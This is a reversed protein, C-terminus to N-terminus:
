VTYPSPDGRRPPGRRPTAGCPPTTTRSAGTPSTCPAASGAPALAPALAHVEAADLVRTRLGLTRQLRVHGEFAAVEDASTALVVYGAPTFLM